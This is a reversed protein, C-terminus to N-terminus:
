GGLLISFNYDIKVYGLGYTQILRDMTEDAFKVVEPNRFDLAYRNAYLNRHGHLSLFWSDPKQAMEVHKAIGEIEVWLGPIMGADRIADMVSNLGHPFKGGNEHWDGIDTWGKEGFWGADVVYIECGAEAARPILRLEKEETPDAWLCNMYDNFIVPLKKDVPHQSWCAIRRYNVMSAIAEEVDGHVRGAAVPLSELSEGPRLEKYWHGYSESLGGIALNLVGWERQGLDWMWSGSHEIQWILTWHNVADELMATPLYVDASRGVANVILKSANPKHTRILGLDELSHVRWQGEAYNVNYPIHILFQGRQTWPINDIFASHLVDLGIAEDSTNSVTVWRRSIPNDGFFQFHNVAELGTEDDRYHLEILDGHKNSTNVLRRSGISAEVQGTPLLRYEHGAGSANVFQFALVDGKSDPTSCQGVGFHQLVQGLDM